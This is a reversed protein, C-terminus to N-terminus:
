GNGNEQQVQASRLAAAGMDLLGVLEDRDHVIIPAVGLGDAYDQLQEALKEIDMVESVPYDTTM